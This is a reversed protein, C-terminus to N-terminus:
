ENDNVEYPVYNNYPDILYKKVVGNLQIVNKVVYVKHGGEFLVKAHALAPSESKNSFNIERSGHELVIVDYWIEGYM